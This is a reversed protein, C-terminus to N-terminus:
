PKAANPTAPKTAPAPTAAPKPPVPAAGAAPAGPRLEPEADAGAALLPFTERIRRGRSKEADQVPDIGATNWGGGLVRYIRVMDTVTRLDARIVAQRAELEQRQVDLLDLLDILGARYQENAIRFSERTAELSEVLAVRRERGKQATVIAGNIEELATLVSQRYAAISELLGARARKVRAYGRGGDWISFRVTPGVGWRFSEQDFWRNLETTQYGASGSIGINPLMAGISQGIAASAQRVRAEAAFVDPRQRVLDIPMGDPVLPMVPYSALKREPLAFTQPPEGLLTALRYNALILEQEADPIQARVAAEAAAQRSTDLRSALGNEERTRVLRLFEARNRAEQRLLNLVEQSGRVQFYASSVEAMLLLAVGRYGAEAEAITARAGETARRNTGWIDPEWAAGAGVDWSNANTRPTTVDKVNTQSGAGRRASAEADATPLFDAQAGRLQARAARIRAKAAELDQNRELARRMLADLEPDEFGKWWELAPTVTLAALTGTTTAVDRAALKAPEVVAPRQFNPGVLCGSTALSGGALVGALLLARGTVALGRNSEPFTM